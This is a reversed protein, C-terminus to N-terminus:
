KSLKNHADPYDGKWKKTYNWLDCLLYEMSTSCRHMMPHKRWVSCAGDYKDISGDSWTVTMTLGDYSASAVRKSMFGAFVAIKKILSKM